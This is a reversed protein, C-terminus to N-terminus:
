GNAYLNNSWLKAVKDGTADGLLKLMQAKVKRRRRGSVGVPVEMVVAWAWGLMAKTFYQPLCSFDPLKGAVGFRDMDKALNVM